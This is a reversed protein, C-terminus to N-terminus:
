PAVASLGSCLFLQDMRVVFARVQTITPVHARCYVRFRAAPPFFRFADEGPLQNLMGNPRVKEAALLSMSLNTVEMESCLANRQDPCWAQSPERM